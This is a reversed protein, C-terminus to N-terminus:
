IEKIQNLKQMVPEVEKLHIDGRGLRMAASISSLGLLLVIEGWTRTEKLKQVMAAVGDATTPDAVARVKPEKPPAHWLQEPVRSMEIMESVTRANQVERASALSMAAGFLEPDLPEHTVDAWRDEVTVIKGGLVNHM